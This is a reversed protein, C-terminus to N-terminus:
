SAEGVKGQPQTGRSGELYVFVVKEETYVYVAVRAAISNVQRELIRRM